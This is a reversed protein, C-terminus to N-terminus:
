IVHLQSRKVRRSVAVVATPMAIDSGLASIQWIRPKCASERQLASLSVLRMPRCYPTPMELILWRKDILLQLLHFFIGREYSVCVHDSTCTSDVHHFPVSHLASAATKMTVPRFTCDDTIFQACAYIFILLSMSNFPAVYTPVVYM